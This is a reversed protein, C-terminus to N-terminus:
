KQWPPGTRSVVQRSMTLMKLATVIILGVVIAMVPLVSRWFDFLTVVAGDVLEHVNMGYYGTIMVFPTSIFTMAALVFGIWALRDGVHRGDDLRRIIETTNSSLM